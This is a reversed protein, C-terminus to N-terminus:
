GILVSQGFTCSSIAYVRSADTYQQCLYEKWHINQYPSLTKGAKVDARKRRHFVTVSKEKDACCRWIKKIPRCVSIIQNQGFYKGSGWCFYGSQDWQNHCKYWVVFVNFFLFCLSASISLVLPPSLAYYKLVHCGSLDM